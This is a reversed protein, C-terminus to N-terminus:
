TMLTPWAALEWAQAIDQAANRSAGGQRHMVRLGERNVAPLLGRELIHLAAQEYGCEGPPEYWWPDRRGGGLPVSRQSALRRHRLTDVCQRRNTSYTPATRIQHATHHPRADLSAGPREMREPPGKRASM